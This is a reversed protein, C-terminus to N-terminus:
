AAKRSEIYDDCVENLIGTNKSIRLLNGYRLVRTAAGHMAFLSHTRDLSRGRTIALEEKLAAHYNVWQGPSFAGRDVMDYILGKRDSQPVWIEHLENQWNHLREMEIVAGSVSESAIRELEIPTVGSTHKRFMLWDGSICLNDCIFVTTGAAVGIAMSRDTAQRFALMWGIQGDGIDLHWCGFMRSGSGNLSYEKKIVKIGQTVCAAGLVEIVQAHSVPHFTKTFEGPPVKLVIEEPVRTTRVHIALSM